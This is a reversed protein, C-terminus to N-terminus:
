LYYKMKKWWWKKAKKEGVPLSSKSPKRQCRWSKACNKARSRTRFIPPFDLVLLICTFWMPPPKEVLGNSCSHTSTSCSDVLRPPPQVLGNSFYSDFHTWRGWTEPHFMFFLNSNGGILDPYIYSSTPPQSKRILIIEVPNPRVSSRWMQCSQVSCANTSKSHVPQHNFWGMQFFILWFHIM